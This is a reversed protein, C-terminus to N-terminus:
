WTLSVNSMPALGYVMSESFSSPKCYSVFPCLGFLHLFLLDSAASERHLQSGAQVLLSNPASCLSAHCILVRFPLCSNGQRPFLVGGRARLCLSLRKDGVQRGHARKWGPSEGRRAPLCACCGSVRQSAAAEVRGAHDRAKLTPLSIVLATVIQLEAAEERQM